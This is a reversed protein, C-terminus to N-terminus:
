DPCGARSAGTNTSGATNRVKESNKKRMDAPACVMGLVSQRRTSYRNPAIMVSRPINLQAKSSAPALAAGQDRVLPVVLVTLAGIVVFILVFAVIVALTRSLKLRQLRDVLPDGLYALLASAVFPTLIPALLYILWIGAFLALLRYIRGESM